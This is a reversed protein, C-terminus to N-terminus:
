LPGSPGTSLESRSNAATGRTSLETITLSFDGRLSENVDLRGLVRSIILPAINMITAIM